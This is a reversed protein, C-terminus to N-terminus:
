TSEILNKGAEEEEPKASKSSSPPPKKPRRNKRRFSLKGSRSHASIRDGSEFRGKLIAMSLPEEIEKQITRMLPRAGNISDYGKEMLLIRAEDTVELSINLEKLRKSVENLMLQMIQMVHDYGLSHFVVVEDVRNLFEPRVLNKLEAMASAKMESHPTKGDGSGFGFQGRSIQRAGVNSTMILLTNRFSVKHGFNDQLEGEELVQLLLNFVDPHAKEIEDLLVVAYPRKRIKETLVGGEEYGVFGPPAGILRSVNHKEMFDSMDIRILADASGFLYEALSKVLLTKGVGTPGLFIFAGLPRSPSSLGTRSRRISSAITAIAEDQGIVSQHLANEIQLLADSEVKEIRIMPINTIEAVLEQIDASEILNNGNKISKEWQMKKEDIKKQISRAKDRMKAANEYDQSNVYSMKEETFLRVKEELGSIDEPYVTLCLQKNAGAEDILDIAKDPLNRETIYRASLEVSARLADDSYTVSHYEEFNKKVGQLIQYTEEITPENIIIPQFRRELAADKEIYKMYENMTTAGICQLEGRSLAPKLMNSVDLTGEAAGAGIITHLEDIFLIINSNEHIEKVIKKLRDEFEGRYKTGAILAALDLSILRKDSFAKPVAGNAIAIALGEAVATKGVGPEGILVPNNKTRRALIRILRSIEKSRGIAPDILGKRAMGTLDRSYNEIFSPNFKQTESHRRNFYGHMRIQGPSKGSKNQAAYHESVVDRLLDIPVKVISLRTSMISGFEAAAALLLHGTGIFSHGFVDAEDSATKILLEARKSPRVDNVRVSSDPDSFSNQLEAAMKMTNINLKLLCQFATCDKQHLMALLIHENLLMDANFQRALAKASVTLIHHAHTTLSKLM